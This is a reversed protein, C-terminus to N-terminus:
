MLRSLNSPLMNHKQTSMMSLAMGGSDHRKDMPSLVEAITHIRFDFKVFSLLFLVSVIDFSAAAWWRARITWSDKDQNYM